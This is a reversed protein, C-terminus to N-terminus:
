LAGLHLEFLGWYFPKRYASKSQILEIKAQRLADNPTAGELRLQLKFAQTESDEVVTIRCSRITAALWKM